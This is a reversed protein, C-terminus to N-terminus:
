PHNVEPTLEARCFFGGGWPRPLMGFSTGLTRLRVLRLGSSGHAETMELRQNQCIKDQVLDLGGSMPSFPLRLVRIVFIIVGWQCNDLTTRLSFHSQLDGWGLFRLWFM